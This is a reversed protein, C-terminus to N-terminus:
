FYKNAIFLGAKNWKVGKIKLYKSAYPNMQVVIFVSYIIHVSWQALNTCLVQTGQGRPVTLRTFYIAYCFSCM